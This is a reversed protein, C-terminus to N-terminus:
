FSWLLSCKHAWEKIVVTSSASLHLQPSLLCTFVGNEKVTTAENGPEEGARHWMSYMFKPPAQSHPRSAGVSTYRSCYTTLIIKYPNL